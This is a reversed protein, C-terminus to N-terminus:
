IWFLDFFVSKAMNSRVDHHTQPPPTTSIDMDTPENPLPSPPAPPKTPPPTPPPQPAENEPHEWQIKGTEAHEYVYCGAGSHLLM